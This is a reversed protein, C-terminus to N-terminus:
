VFLDTSPSAPYKIKIRTASELIPALVAQLDTITNAEGTGTNDAPVLIFTDDIYEREGSTNIDQSRKSTIQFVNYTEDELVFNFSQLFENTKGVRQRSRGSQKQARDIFRINLTRGTMVKETNSAEVFNTALSTDQDGTVLLRPTETTERDEVQAKEHDIAVVLLADHTGNSDVNIVELTSTVALDSNAVVDALTAVFRDDATYTYTQGGNTWFNFTTGSSIASIATGSGGAVNVAFVVYDKYGFARNTPLQVARSFLNLDNAINATIYSQREADTTLGLATFDVADSKGIVMDDNNRGYFKNVRNSHMSVYMRVDTQNTTPFAGANGTQAGVVWASRSAVSYATGAFRLKSEDNIPMSSVYAPGGSSALNANVGNLSSVATSAPTGQVIKITDVDAFTNPASSPGNTATLFTGKPVFGDSDWSIVGLQGNALGVSDGTNSYISGTSALNQNGSAVLFRESRPTGIAM